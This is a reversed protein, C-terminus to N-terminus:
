LNLQLQPSENQTDHARYAQHDGVARYPLEAAWRDVDTRLWLSLRIGVSCSKPFLDKAMMEYLTTRSRIETAALVQRINMTVRKGNDM